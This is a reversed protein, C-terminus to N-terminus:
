KVYIAVAQCFGSLLVTTDYTINVSRGSLLAAELLSMQQKGRDDTGITFIVKSTGPASSVPCTSASTVGALTFWNTYTSPGHGAIMEVKTYGTTGAAAFAPRDLIGTLLLASLLASTLISKKMTM